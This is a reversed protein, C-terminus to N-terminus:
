KVRNQKKVVNKSEKKIVSNFLEKSIVEKAVKEAKEKCSNWFSYIDPLISSFQPHEQCKRIYEYAKEIEDKEKTSLFVLDKCNELRKNYYSVERCSEGLLLEIKELFSKTGAKEEVFLIRLDPWDENVKELVPYILECKKDKFGLSIRDIIYGGGKRKGICFGLVIEDIEGFDLLGKMKAFWYLANQFGYMGLSGELFSNTRENQLIFGRDTKIVGIYKGLKDIFEERVLNKINKEWSLYAREYIDDYTREDKVLNGAEKWWIEDFIRDFGMSLSTLFCSATLEETVREESLKKVIEDWKKCIGGTEKVAEVRVYNGGKKFFTKEDFATFILLFKILALLENSNKFSFVRKLDQSKNVAKKIDEVFKKLVEFNDKFEKGSLFIKGEAYATSVKDIALEVDKLRDYVELSDEYDEDSSRYKEVFRAKDFLYEMEEPSVEECKKLHIEGKEKISFCFKDEEPPLNVLRCGGVGVELVSKGAEKKFLSALRGLLFGAEEFFVKEVGKRELPLGAEESLFEEVGKLKVRMKRIRNAEKEFRKFFEKFINEIDKGKDKLFSEYFVSYFAEDSIPTFDLIKEEEKDQIDDSIRKM